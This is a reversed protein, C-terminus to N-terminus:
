WARLRWARCTWTAALSGALAGALHVAIDPRVDRPLWPSAIASTGAAFLYGIGAVAIVGSQWPKQAVSRVLMYAGIAYAFGSAGRYESAGSLCVLALAQAAFAALAIRALAEIGERRAVVLALMGVAMANAAAHSPSWHVLFGTALRWVDGEMFGAREFALLSSWGDAVGHM